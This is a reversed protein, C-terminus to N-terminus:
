NAVSCFRSCAATDSRGLCTIDCSCKSQCLASDGGLARCDAVCARVGGAGSRLTSNFGAADIGSSANLGVGPNDRQVELLKAQAELLDAQARYLAARNALLDRQKGGIEIKLTVIEAPLDVIAKAIKLPISVFGALESGKDITVDRLYGEDFTLVTKRDAFYSRNVGVSLVPAENELYMEVKDLVYWGGRLKRNKQKMVYVPYPLRPRYLIGRRYNSPPLDTAQYPLPEYSKYVPGSPYTGKSGLLDRDRQRLSLRRGCYNELFELSVVSKAPPVYVCMGFRKLNHNLVRMEQEDFPDFTDMYTNPLGTNSSGTQSRVAAALAIQKGTDILAEAISQSKDKANGTIELLLGNANKNVILKDESTVSGLFDLCYSRRRDAIREEKLTFISQDAKSEDVVIRLKSKALFYSGASGHCGTDGTADYQETGVMSCAALSLATFIALLVFGGWSHPRRVATSIKAGIGSM